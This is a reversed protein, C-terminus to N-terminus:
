VLRAGYKKASRYKKFSEEGVKLDKKYNFFKLWAEEITLGRNVQTVSINKNTDKKPILNYIDTAVRKLMNIRLEIDDASFDMSGILESEILFIIKEIEEVKKNHLITAFKKNKTRLSKLIQATGFYNRFRKPVIYRFYYTKNKHQQLM